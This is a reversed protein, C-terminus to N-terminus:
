PGPLPQPPLDPLPPLPLNDKMVCLTAENKEQLTIYM